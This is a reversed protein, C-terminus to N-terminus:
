KKVLLYIGTGIGITGAVAAAIVVNKKPFGFIKKEQKSAAAASTPQQTTTQDMCPQKICNIVQNFEDQSQTGSSHHFKKEKDYYDRFERFKEKREKRPLKGHVENFIQSITKHM